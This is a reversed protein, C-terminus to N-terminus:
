RGLLMRTEWLYKVELVGDKRADKHADHSASSVHVTCVMLLKVLVGLLARAGGQQRRGNGRDGSSRVM